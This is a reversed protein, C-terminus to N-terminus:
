FDSVANSGLVTRRGSCQTESEEGDQIADTAAETRPTCWTGNQEWEARMLGYREQVAPSFRVVRGAMLQAVNGSDWLGSARVHGSRKKRVPVDEFNKRAERM